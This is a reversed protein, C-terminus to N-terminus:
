LGLSNLLENVKERTKSGINRMRMYGRHESNILHYLEGITNINNARLANLARCSLDFDKLNTNNFRELAFETSSMEVMIEFVNHAKKNIVGECLLQDFRLPNPVNEILWQTFELGTSFIKHKMFDSM